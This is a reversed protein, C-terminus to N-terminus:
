GTGHHERIEDLVSGQANLGSRERIEDLVSQHRAEHLKRYYDRTEHLAEEGARSLNHLSLHGQEHLEHLICCATAYAQRERPTDRVRRLGAAYRFDTNIVRPSVLSLIGPCLKLLELTVRLKLLMTQNREGHLSQPVYVIGGGQLSIFFNM